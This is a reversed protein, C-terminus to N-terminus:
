VAFLFFHWLLTQECEHPHVLHFTCGYINSGEWSPLSQPPPANIGCRMLLYTTVLGRMFGLTTRAKHWFLRPQRFDSSLMPFIGMRLDREM